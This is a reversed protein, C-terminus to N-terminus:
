RLSWRWAIRRGRLQGDLWQFPARAQSIGANVAMALAGRAFSVYNLDASRDLMGDPTPVVGNLAALEAWSSVMRGDQPRVLKPWYFTPRSRPWGSKGDARDITSAIKWALVPRWDEFGMWVGLGLVASFYDEQWFPMRGVDVGSHFYATKISKNNVYNEMIWRFNRSLKEKWYSKPLLWKPVNNPLAAILYFLSRLTWAYERVQDHRIICNHGPYDGLVYTEAFEMEELYYPDGTLLFPLYDLEPRHAGDIVLGPPYSLYLHPAGGRMQDYYTTAKPYKDYSLPANTEPDRLHWPITGSAEAWAFVSRLATADGTALYAASAEPLLGIDPREGTAPMYPDVSSLGMIKYPKAPPPLPATGIRAYPPVLRHAILDAPTRIVPRPASQWRWRSLWYQEPVSLRAIPRGDNLIEATYPGLPHPNPHFPNGWEFVVEARKRSRDPRFFITLPIKPDRVEINRQVFGPGHYDGLDEGNRADFVHVGDPFTVRVSLDGVAIAAPGIAAPAADASALANHQVAKQAVPKPKASRRERPAAPSHEAHGSNASANAPVPDRGTLYKPAPPLNKATGIESPILLKPAPPLQQAFSPVAFVVALLFGAYRLM